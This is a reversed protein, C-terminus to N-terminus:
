VGSRGVYRAPKRITITENHSVFENKEYVRPILHLMCRSLHSMTKEMLEHRQRYVPDNAMKEDHIRKREPAGAEWEIKRVKEDERESRLELIMDEFKADDQENIMDYYREDDM